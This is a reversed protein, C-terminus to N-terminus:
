TYTSCEMNVLLTNCDPMDMAPAMDFFDNWLESWTVDESSDISDPTSDLQLRKPSTNFPDATCNSLSGQTKHKRLMARLTRIGNEIGKLAVTSEQQTKELMKCASLVETKRIQIHPENHTFCLDMALTVAAMFVHQMVIALRRVGIDNFHDMSKRLELVTQASRICVMWSFAYKPNSSGHLLYPRHLRCIRSHISFHIMVRQVAIYPREKCIDKTTEMSGPEIQFFLPLEKIFL